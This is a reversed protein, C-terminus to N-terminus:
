FCQALGYIGCFDLNNLFTLIYHTTNSEPITYQVTRLVNSEYQVYLTCLGVQNQWIFVASFLSLLFVRLQRFKKKRQRFRQRFIVLIITTLMLFIYKSALLMLKAKYKLITPPIQKLNITSTKRRCLFFLLVLLARSPMSPQHRTKNWKGRGREEKRDGAM